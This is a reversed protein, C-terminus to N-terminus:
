LHCKSKKKGEKKKQTTNASFSTEFPNSKEFNFAAATPNIVNSGENIKESFLILDPGELEGESFM